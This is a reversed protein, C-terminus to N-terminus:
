ILLYRILIVPRSFINTVSYYTSLLYYFSFLSLKVIRFNSLRVVTYYLLNLVISWSLHIAYVIYDDALLEVGARGRASALLEVDARGRASALLEVGARGRASALLEVDARGRASALLESIPPYEPFSEGAARM